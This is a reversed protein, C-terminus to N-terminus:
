SSSYVSLPIIIATPYLSKIITHVITIRLVFGSALPSAPAICTIHPAVLLNVVTTTKKIGYTPDQFSAHFYIIHSDACRTQNSEHSSSLCFSSAMDRGSIRQTVHTQYWWLFGDMWGPLSRGFLSAGWHLSWVSVFPLGMGFVSVMGVGSRFLLPSKRVGLWGGVMVSLSRTDIRSLFLLFDRSLVGAVSEFV